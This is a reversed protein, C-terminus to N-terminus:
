FYIKFCQFPYMSSFKVNKIGFDSQWNSTKAGLTFHDFLFNKTTSVQSFEPKLFHDLISKM